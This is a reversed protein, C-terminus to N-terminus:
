VGERLAQAGAMTAGAVGGGIIATGMTGGLGQGAKTAIAGRQKSVAQQQKIAAKEAQQAARAEVRALKEAAKEAQQIEKQSKVLEGNLRRAADAAKDLHKGVRDTYGPLDKIRASVQTLEAKLAAANQPNLGSKVDAGIKNLTQDLERAAKNLKQDVQKYFQEASVTGQQFEKYLKQVEAEMLKLANLTQSLDVTVGLQITENGAM